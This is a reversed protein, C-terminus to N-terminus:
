NHTGDSLGYKVENQKHEDYTSAYHINGDKDHLYYINKNQEPRLIAEWASKSIQAIAGKNIIRMQYTNYWNVLKRQFEIDDKKTPDYATTNEFGYKFTADLNLGSIEPHNEGVRNWYVSAIGPQQEPHLQAEGVLDSALCILDHLSVVKGEGWPYLKKHGVIKMYENRYPKIMNVFKGVMMRILGNIPTSKSIQYEGAGLYGELKYRIGQHLMEDESMDFDHFDYEESVRNLTEKVHDSSMLQARIKYMEGMPRNLYRPLKSMLTEATDNSFVKFKVSPKYEFDGVLIHVIEDASQSKSFYYKEGPDSVKSNCTRTQGNAFKGCDNRAAYQKAAEADQIIEYEQLRELEKSLNDTQPIFSVVNADTKDLPALNSKGFIQSTILMMGGFIFGILIAFPVLIYLLKKYIM